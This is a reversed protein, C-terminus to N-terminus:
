TEDMHDSEFWNALKMAVPTLEEKDLSQSDRSITGLNSSGSSSSGRQVQVPELMTDVNTTAAKKKESVIPSKSSEIASSPMIPAKDESSSASSSTAPASASESVTPEAKITRM